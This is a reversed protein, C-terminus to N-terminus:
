ASAGEGSRLHILVRQVQGDSATLEAELMGDALSLSLDQLALVKEGDEPAFDEEAGGFLECLYGEWCYVRTLYREGDINEELFLTVEDSSQSFPDVFVGGAADAQRVRTTLYQAATREDFTEQGRDTLRQYADAGTLLVGLVCGAFVGFLMLVALASWPGSRKMQRERM